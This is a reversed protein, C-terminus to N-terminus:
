ASTADESQEAADLAAVLRARAQALERSGGTSQEMESLVAEYEEGLLDKQQRTLIAMYEAAAPVVPARVSWAEGAQRWKVLDSELAAIRAQAQQLEERLETDVAATISAALKERDGALLDTLREIEARAAELEPQESVPRCRLKASQTSWTPSGHANTSVASL